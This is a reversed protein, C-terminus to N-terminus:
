FPSTYPYSFWNRHVTKLELGDALGLIWGREDGRLESLVVYGLFDTVLFWAQPSVRQGCDGIIPNMEGCRAAIKETQLMDLTSAALYTAGLAVDRKSWGTCAATAFLVALGVRQMM